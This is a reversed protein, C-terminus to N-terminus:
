GGEPVPAKPKEANELNTHPHVARYAMDSLKTQPVIQNNKAKLNVDWTVTQAKKADANADLNYEYHIRYKGEDLREPKWRCRRDEKCAEFKEPDDVSATLLWELATVLERDQLITALANCQDKYQPNSCAKRSAGTWRSAPNSADPNYTTPLIKVPSTQEFDRGIQMINAAQLNKGRLAKEGLDFEFEAYTIEGDDVWQFFATYIDDYEHVVTWGLIHDTDRKSPLEAFHILMIGGLNIGGPFTHNIISSIVQQEVKNYERAEASGPSLTALAMADKPMVVQKKVDVLWTPGTYVLEDKYRYSVFYYSDKLYKATWGIKEHGTLNFTEEFFGKRSLDNISITSEDDKRRPNDKDPPAPVELKRVLRIADKEKDEWKGKKRNEAAQEAQQGKQWVIEVQPKDTIIIVAVMALVLILTVAFSLVVYLIQRKSM